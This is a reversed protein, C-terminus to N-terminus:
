ASAGTYGLLTRRWHLRSVALAAATVVPGTVLWHPTLRGLLAQAPLTTLLVVPIVTLVTQFPDRYLQVPFRSLEVAAFAIQQLEASGLLRVSLAMLTLMLSYLGLLSTAFLLVFQLVNWLKLPAESLIFGIATFATGLIPDLVNGINIRRLSMLVQADVPKTLLFDLTGLRVYDTMQELNPQFVAQRVGNITFFLGTVVLLERYTWGVLDGSFQFYVALGAAAWLMWFLSLAFGAVFNVRYEFETALAARWCIAIIRLYRACEWGSTM